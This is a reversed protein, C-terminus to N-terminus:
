INLQKLVNLANTAEMLYREGDKGDVIRYSVILAFSCFSISYIDIKFIFAIYSFYWFCHLVSLESKFAHGTDLMNYLMVVVCTTGNM